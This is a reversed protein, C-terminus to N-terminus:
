RRSYGLKERARKAADRIDPDRDVAALRTLVRGVDEHVAPRLANSRAPTAPAGIQRGGSLEAARAGYAHGQQIVGTGSEEAYGVLVRLGALRDSRPYSDDRVVTSVADYLRADRMLASTEVLATREAATRPGRRTWRNALTVPGTSPCGASARIEGVSPNPALMESVIAVCDPAESQAAATTPSLVTIMSAAILPALALGRTRHTPLRNTMNLKPNSTTTGNRCSLRGLMPHRM